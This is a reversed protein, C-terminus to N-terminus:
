QVARMWRGLRRRLLFVTKFFVPHTYQSFFCAEVVPWGHGVMPWGNALWPGDMPWGHALWEGVMTRGNALWQGVM